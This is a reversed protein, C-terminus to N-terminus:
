LLMVYGSNGWYCLSCIAIQLIAFQLHCVAFPLSSIAFHFISFTCNTFPLRCITFSLTVDLSQTSLTCLAIRRGHPMLSHVYTAFVLRKQIYLTFTCKKIITFGLWRHLRNTRVCIVGNTTTTWLCAMQKYQVLLLIFIGTAIIMSSSLWLTPYLPRLGGASFTLRSHFHCKRCILLHPNCFCYALSAMCYQISLRCCSATWYPLVLLPLM